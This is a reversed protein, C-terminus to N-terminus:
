GHGRARACGRPCRPGKGPGRPALLLRVPVCRPRLPLLVCGEVRGAELVHQRPAVLGRLREEAPSLAALLRAERAAFAPVAGVTAGALFLAVAGPQVGTGQHERFDPAAADVPGTGALARGLRARDRARGIAPGDAEGTRVDRAVGQREAPWRRPDLKAQLGQGGQRIAALDRVWADQAHGRQVQLPRRSPNGAALFAALAGALGDYPAGLRMLM